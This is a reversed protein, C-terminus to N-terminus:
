KSMISTVENVKNIIRQQEELPPLPVLYAKVTKTALEKQKTSGDSKDEIVSQVTNSSFYFYLYKPKVFRKYSRIVTVHSDAVALEYPNLRSYYIAMRGLTGLGTSNWMLDEDELFQEDSYSSLSQPEIFKAKELSFGSWQNCKQAVVPYKMIDSYKPSKGRHIYSCISDLRVWSWTQPIEFPIEDDICILENNVKEWYKNDDGRFIVSDNLASKKLKGEKVLKRKEIKIQELLEHATGESAIQPVLKGQIAEQLISKQLIGKIAVNWTDLHEQAKSYKEIYPSLEKIKTVIRNQEEIPPIPVLVKRFDTKNFKGQATSSSISWLTDYGFPSSFVNYLWSKTCEDDLRIMVSNPALTMPMNLNPVTFVKGISAGINPLILEGGFLNSNSLFDYGHKDTYVLDKSFNCSLDKTRVLLAYEKTSYYKVNERLSAFSGSAVFDTVSTAVENVRCWEWGQPIEFPIEEDICKVEGTALMKEYYSNDEGRYIISANKDRKIKKEKILREKEQRIKELLVSAPEDNPDQPVLKGQIAWQLISNKLQKGNM